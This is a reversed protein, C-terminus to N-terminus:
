AQTGAYDSENPQSTASTVLANLDLVEITEDGITLMGSIYNPSTPDSTQMPATVLECEGDVPIAGPELFSGFDRTAVLYFRHAPSNKGALIRSVEYVPV